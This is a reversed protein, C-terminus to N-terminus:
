FNKRNYLSMEESLRKYVLSLNMQQSREEQAFLVFGTPAYTLFLATKSRNVHQDGPGQATFVEKKIIKDELKLESTQKIESILVFLNKRKHFLRLIKKREM